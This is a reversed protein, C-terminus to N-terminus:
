DKIKLFKIEEKTLKEKISKLINQEDKLILQEKEYKRIVEEAESEFDEYLWRVPIKYNLFPRKVIVQIVIPLYNDHKIKSYTKKTGPLYDWRIYSQNDEAIYEVIYNIRNNILFSHSEIKDVLNNYEDVINRDIKGLNMIKGGNFEEPFYENVEKFEM